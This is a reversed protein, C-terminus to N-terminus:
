ARVSQHDTHPLPTRAKEIHLLTVYSHLSLLRQDGARSPTSFDLRDTAHAKGDLPYHM